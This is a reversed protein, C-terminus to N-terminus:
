AQDEALLETLKSQVMSAAWRMTSARAESIAKGGHMGINCPKLCVRSESEFLKALQAMARLARSDVCPMVVATCGLGRPEDNTEDEHQYCHSSRPASEVEGDYHGGYEMGSENPM